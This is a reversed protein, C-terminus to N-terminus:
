SLLIFCLLVGVCSAPLVVVVPRVGSAISHVAGGGGGGGDGGSGLGVVQDGGARGLFRCMQLVLQRRRCGCGVLVVALSWFLEGSCHRCGGRRGSGQLMTWAVGGIGDVVWCVEFCAGIKRRPLLWHIQASWVVMTSVAGGCRGLILWGALECCAVEWAKPVVM